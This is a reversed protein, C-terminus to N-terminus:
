YISEKRQPHFISPGFTSSIIQLLLPFQLFAFLTVPVCAMLGIPVAIWGIRHVLVIHLASSFAALMSVISFFLTILGISLRMPLARLFDEESYRSTLMGLFMLVSTSSTFLALADSIAFIMFPVDSLFFPIGDSNNGGPVTFAASFVVTAVLAAVVTCSSATNKMWEEGAIVLEKHDESFVERPTKGDQNRMKKYSPQVVKEVERFWQLERQMQLAAGSIKNSPELKGALHLINNRTNDKLAMLFHKQLSTQYLLNFVKEKRHLVALHFVNHSKQSDRLWVSYPFAEMIEVVVEHIGLEAASRLPAGLLNMVETWQGKAVEACLIKALELAQKHMLKLDYIHQLFGYQKSEELYNELREPPNEADGTQIVHDQKLSICKYLLRQFWGLNSGSAFAHNKQALTSLAYHGLNDRELALKPYSKVLHLAIGYFDAIILYNVLKVGSKGSFPFPDENNTVSLLFSVAEKHGYAAASHLPTENYSNLLLPLRSNKKVLMKAAETNGAMGAYHLPTHGRKDKVELSAKSMLNILEQVLKRSKGSQIAIHLATDSHSTIKATLANPDSELISKTIGWDGKVAANYLQLYKIYDQHKDETGAHNRSQSDPTIEDESLGKQGTTTSPDVTDEM